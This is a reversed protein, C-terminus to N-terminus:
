IVNVTTLLSLIMKVSVALNRGRTTTKVHGSVARTQVVYACSLAKNKIGLDKQSFMRGRLEGEPDIKLRNLSKVYFRSLM